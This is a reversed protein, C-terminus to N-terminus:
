MVSPNALLIFDTEKLLENLYTKVASKIAHVMKVAVLISYTCRAISKSAIPANISAFIYQYQYIIALIYPGIYIYEVYM